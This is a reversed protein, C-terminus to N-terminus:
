PGTPCQAQASSSLVLARVEADMADGRLRVVVAALHKIEMFEIQDQRTRYVLLRTPKPDPERPQFDPGIRHVPFRYALNRVLPSIVPCGSQLDGNPDALSPDPDDDSVSLALEVWEYHALELLFPPDDRQQVRQNRLYELFEQPLELFLPTKCRHRILFDRIMGHWHAQTLLKRLVPFSTELLSAINNFFLDRYIAMRREEVDAPRPQHQPDRIHAAFALQTRIFDAPPDDRPPATPEPM